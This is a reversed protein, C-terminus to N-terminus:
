LSSQRSIKQHSPKYFDDPTLIDLIDYLTSNDILVSSLLAEEAEISQPPLHYLSPDKPQTSVNDSM